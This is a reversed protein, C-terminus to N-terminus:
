VFGRVERVEGLARGEMEDSRTRAHTLRGGATLRQMQIEESPDASEGGDNPFGPQARRRRRRRPCFCPCCPRDRAYFALLWIVVGGVILVPVVGVCILTILTPTSILPTGPPRSTADQFLQRPSTHSRLALPAM